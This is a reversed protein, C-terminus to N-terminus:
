RRKSWIAVSDGTVPIHFVFRFGDLLFKGAGKHHYHRLWQELIPVKVPSPDNKCLLQPQVHSAVVEPTGVWMVGLDEKQVHQQPMHVVVSPVQM